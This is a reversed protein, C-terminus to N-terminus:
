KLRCDNDTHRPQGLVYDSGENLVMTLWCSIGDRELIALPEFGSYNGGSTDAQIEMLRLARSKPKSVTARVHVMGDDMLYKIQEIYTIVSGDRETAAVMREVEFSGGDIAEDTLAAWRQADEASSSAHREIAARAEQAARTALFRVVEQRDSEPAERFFRVGVSGVIAVGYANGGGGVDLLGSDTRVVRQEDDYRNHGLPGIVHVLKSPDNRLYARWTSPLARGGLWQAPLKGEAYYLEERQSDDDSDVFAWRGNVLWAVPVLLDDQLVGIWLDRSPAAGSVAPAIALCAVVVFATALQRV